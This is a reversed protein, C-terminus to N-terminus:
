EQPTAWREQDTRPIPYAVLLLLAFPPTFFLAAFFWVGTSRGRAEAAAATAICTALYWIVGTILLLASSGTAINFLWVM